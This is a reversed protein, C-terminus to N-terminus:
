HLKLPRRQKAGDMSPPASTAVVSFLPAFDKTAVNPDFLGTDHLSVPSKRNLGSVAAAAVML